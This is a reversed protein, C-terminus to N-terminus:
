SLIEEIETIYSNIHCVVMLVHAVLKKGESWFQLPGEVKWRLVVPLSMM